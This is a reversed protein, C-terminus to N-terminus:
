GGRRNGGFIVAVIAAALLFGFGLAALVPSFVGAM